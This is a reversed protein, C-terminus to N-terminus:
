KLFRTIKNNQFFYCSLICLSGGCARGLVAFHKHLTRTILSGGCARGLVASRQDM